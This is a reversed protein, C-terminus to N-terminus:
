ILYISFYYIFYKLIENGAQILVQRLKKINQHLTEAKVAHKTFHKMQTSYRSSATVENPLGKDSQISLRIINNIILNTISTSARTLAM